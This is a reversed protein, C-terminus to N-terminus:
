VNVVSYLSIKLTLALCAVTLSDQKAIKVHTNANNVINHEM